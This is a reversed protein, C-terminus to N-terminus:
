ACIWRCFHSCRSPIPANVLDCGFGVAGGSCDWSGDGPAPSVCSPTPIPPLCGGSADSYETGDPCVGADTLALQICGYPPYLCIQSASCVSAGCAFTGAESQGDAADADGPARATSSTSQGGCSAVALAAVVLTSISLTTSRGMCNVLRMSKRLPRVDRKLIRMPRLGWVRRRRLVHLRSVHMGPPGERLHSASQYVATGHLGRDSRLRLLQGVVRHPLRGRRRPSRLGDPSRGRVDM